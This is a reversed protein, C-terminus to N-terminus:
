VIGLQINERLVFTLIITNLKSSAPQLIRNKKKKERFQIILQVIFDELDFILLREPYYALIECM